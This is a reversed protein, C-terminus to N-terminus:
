RNKSHVSRDNRKEHAESVRVLRGDITQGNMGAIAAVVQDDAMEVFGFAKSGDALRDMVINCSLVEGYTSFAQRLSQENTQSGLNGVYIKKAM